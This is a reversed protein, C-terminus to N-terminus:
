RNRKRVRLKINFNLPKKSIWKIFRQVDKHSKLKEITNYELELQKETFLAHIQKHCVEHIYVYSGHLGGRCKPILHHKSEHEPIIMRKCLECIM